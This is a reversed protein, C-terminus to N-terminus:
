LRRLRDFTAITIGVAVVPSADGNIMADLGWSVGGVVLAAAACFSAFIRGKADRMGMRVVDFSVEAEAEGGVVAFNRVIDGFDRETELAEEVYLGLDTREVLMELERLRAADVVDRDAQALANMAETFLSPDVAQALSGMAETFPSLDVAQALSGMAETFPSLDVARTSM